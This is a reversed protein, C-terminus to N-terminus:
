RIKDSPPPALAVEAGFDYFEWVYTEEPSGIPHYSYRRTRGDEDVWVEVPFRDYEPPAGLQSLHATARYHTTQVGRVTETGEESLEDAVSELYGFAEPSAALNNRLSIAAAAQPTTEGTESWVEASVNKSYGETTGFELRELAPEGEIFLTYSVEGTAFDGIGKYTAGLRGEEPYQMIEFRATPADSSGSCATLAVAAVVGILRGVVHMRRTLSRRVPRSRYTTATEGTFTM